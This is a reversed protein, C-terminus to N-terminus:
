TASVDKVCHDHQHKAAQGGGGRGTSFAPSGTSCGRFPCEYNPCSVIVPELERAHFCDPELERKCWPCRPLPFPSPGRKSRYLTLAETVQAMTNATASRGVWLGIASREDGLEKPRRRRIEELACILTAARGLQDLTLLRLTYRLLIAM